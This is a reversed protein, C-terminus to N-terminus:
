RGAFVSALLSSRCSVFCGIMRPRFCFVSPFSSLPHPSTHHTLIPDSPFGCCAIFLGECVDRPYAPLVAGFLSGFFQNFKQLTTIDHDMGDENGFLKRCCISEGGKLM